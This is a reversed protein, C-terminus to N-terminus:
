KGFVFAAGQDPHRDVSQLPAGAVVIDDTVAVSFGFFSLGRAASLGAQPQSASQWGSAPKTFLFIINLPSFDGVAVSSGHVAVSGGFHQLLYFYVPSELEVTQTSDAWGTRPEVFVDAVGQLNNESVAQQAGVVVTGNSIAVSLGFEDYPGQPSRTLIATQTATTWGIAPKSFVYAEGPGTQDQHFPAGIVISDGGIGVSIGFVCQYTGDSATLQANFASTTAWGTPPEVFVYAAGQEANGNIEAAPAGVVITNRSIAVAGGFGDGTVGDTLQATETMNQWTGTSSVFVYAKDFSGVVITNGDIAVSQGFGDGVYGDSPTLEATQVMNGWGGEPKQYVYVVGQNQLNCYPNGGIEGCNEGVVVTDGSAAVATGLANGAVGDSASLDATSEREFQVPIESVRFTKTQANAHGILLLALCAALRCSIRRSSIM